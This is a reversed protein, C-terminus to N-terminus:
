KNMQALRPAIQLTKEGEYRRVIGGGNGSLGLRDERQAHDGKVLAVAGLSDAARVLAALKRVKRFIGPHDGEILRPQAHHLEVRASEVFRRRVQCLPQFEAPGDAVVPQHAVRQREVTKQREAPALQGGHRGEAVLGHDAGLTDPFFPQPRQVSQYESLVM